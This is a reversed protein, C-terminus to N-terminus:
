PEGATVLRYFRMPSQAANADTVSILRGAPSPPIDQLTQWAVSLDTCYEVTYGRGAAAPFQLTAGAADAAVSAFKLASSADNPNTGAIFERANSLGDGDNDFTSGAFWAFM